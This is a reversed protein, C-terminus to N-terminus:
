DRLYKDFWAITKEWGDKAANANYAAGTDNNFAHGAGDYVIKQFTKNNAKLADEIAPIGANIRTDTGGYLALIAGQIKSVDELPPNAGYFPVAAKLDPMQTAVRWAIGGGFCFGTVGIRAKHVFSQSQMYAFGARFDDVGRQQNMASFAAPAADFGVKASGGERSLLDPALAAYGAKAFRRTVDKIHDVLGRNEHCVLVIPFPGNGKPKALYAAIKDGKADYEVMKAEIAPDDPMVTGSVVPGRTPIPAATPVPTPAPACAALLTSVVAGSGVILALKALAERRTLRGNQNDEIIRDIMENRMSDDSMGSSQISSDSM